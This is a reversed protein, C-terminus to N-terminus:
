KPHVQSSVLFLMLNTRELVTIGIFAQSFRCNAAMLSLYLKRECVSNNLSM